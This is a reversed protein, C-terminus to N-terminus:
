LVSPENCNTIVHMYVVQINDKGLAVQEIWTKNVRCINCHFLRLGFSADTSELACM